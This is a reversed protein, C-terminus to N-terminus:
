NNVQKILHELNVRNREEKTFLHVIIDSLDILIWPCTQDGEKHRVPQNLKESAEIVADAVASAHRPNLVTAIVIYSCIPSTTSVDFIEIEEGKKDEIAKKIFDLKVQEM